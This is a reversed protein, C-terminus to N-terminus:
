KGRAEARASAQMTTTACQLEYAMTRLLLSTVRLAQTVQLAPTELVGRIVQLLAPEPQGLIARTATQGLTARLGRIARVQGLGRIVPYELRAPAALMEPLEPAVGLVELVGAVVGLVETGLLDEPM